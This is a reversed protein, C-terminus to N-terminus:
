QMLPMIMCALASSSALGFGVSACIRSASCFLRHRQPVCTRITRAILRASRLGRSSVIMSAVVGQRAAVEELGRARKHDSERKGARKGCTGARRGHFIGLLKGALGDGGVLDVAKEGDVGVALHRHKRALHVEAGADVRRHRLDGGFFQRHRELPDRDDLAVRRQRGVLSRSEAAERDLVAAHLDPLSRGSRALRERRLRSFARRAARLRRRARRGCRLRRSAADSIGFDDALAIERHLDVGLRRQFVRCGVRDDALGDCPEVNRVFDRAAEGVHLIELHRAHQM